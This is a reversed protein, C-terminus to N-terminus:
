GIPEIEGSRDRNAGPCARSKRRRENVGIRIFEARESVDQKDAWFRRTRVGLNGRFSNGTAGFKARGAKPPRHTRAGSKPDGLFEMESPYSLDELHSM